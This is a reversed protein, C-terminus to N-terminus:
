LEAMVLPTIATAPLLAADLASISVPEWSDKPTRGVLGVVLHLSQGGSGM